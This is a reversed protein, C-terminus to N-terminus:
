LTKPKSLGDAQSRRLLFFAALGLAIIPLGATLGINLLNYGYNVRYALSTVVFGESDSVNVQLKNQGMRSLSYNYNSASGQSVVVGNLYWTYTYPPTGGSVTLSSKAENNSLFFSTSEPSVTWSSIFPDQNVRVNMTTSNIAYNASDILKGYVTYNGIATANFSFNSSTLSTNQEEVQQGDVYWLFTYPSTGGLVSASLTDHQNLDVSQQASSISLSPDSNVTFGVSQSSAPYGNSDIVDVYYDHAGLALSGFNLITDYIGNTSNYTAFLNNDLFVLYTYPLTGGSANAAFSTNVQNGIDASISSASLNMSVPDTGTDLVYADAHETAGNSEFQHLQHFNDFAILSSSQASFVTQNTAVNYEDIWLWAASLAFAQNSYTVFQESGYYPNAHYQETMLGTFFGHMNLTSNPNGVFNSAGEASYTELAYSNTNYDLAYMVAKGAFSGTGFYLNFLVCDGQNVPGSFTAAGGGGNSPFISVGTTNFVEYALVFGSATGGWDYALGVQYWYGAGSLGNLLYAPGYGDSDVQAVATVNYELSTFSQTFTEGVQEDYKPTTGAFQATQKPQLMAAMHMHYTLDSTMPISHNPVSAVSPNIM